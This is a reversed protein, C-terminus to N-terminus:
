VLHITLNLRVNPSKSHDVSGARFMKHLTWLFKDHTLRGYHHIYMKGQLGLVYLWGFLMFVTNKGAIQEQVM